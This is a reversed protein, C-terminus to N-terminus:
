AAVGGLTFGSQVVGFKGVYSMWRLLRAPNIRAPNTIPLRHIHELASYCLMSCFQQHPAPDFWRSAFNTGSLVARLMDYDDEETVCELLFASLKRRELLDLRYKPLLRWVECRGGYDIVRQTPDQVQVGKHRKGLVLCSHPCLTTSEVLVKRGQYEAIIGVHSPPLKLSWWPWSTLYTGLEIARSTFGDGVFALVDGACFDFAQGM